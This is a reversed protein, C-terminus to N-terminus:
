TAIGLAAALVVLEEPAGGRRLADYAIEQARELSPSLGIEAAVTLATLAAGVAVPDGVAREVARVLLVEVVARARPSDITFGSARAERAIAIAGAFDEPAVSAGQKVVEAELRRALALEAPLRLELPMPYGAAMLAHLVDRHDSYLREYAAGFRDLLGRAARRLIHAGEDPLASALGFETPGFRDSIVRLLTTVPAGESMAARIATFDDPDHVADAARSAGLVELGGLHLAAYSHPSTRGTRRHTVVVTGSSLSVSGRTRYDHDGLVVSYAAVPSAPTREDFLEGLALHAVVREADVRVPVVHRFWIDRGNGEDDVNSRAGALAELFAPEPPSEGLERLCDMARGAYRLVQVTELGAVDNFFWGCSTYMAMRHRECELATFADVQDGTIHRAAFEDSTCAGVLVDVYADLAAQPDGFWSPGRRDFVERAADSVLDLADRLPRRWAQHWGPLGGTSCGCDDRWRGIGHACSWSSEHVDVESVPRNSELWRAPTTVEVGAEPAVVELAYALLRDGFVHHHGFTEGDAALTALGDDGAAARARDVLGESTIGGLEFAAAHSLAGDYFIVDVGRGDGDPHRWRYPHRTDISGDSVDSWAGDGDDLRRVRAAQGPALMTFAVGEEALIRMVRDNVATEPLWLGAAERGFRHAFERRAWRVQTRVDHERALPLIIHFFAQAMGGQGARDADLLQQYAEPAGRELWSLLTPGFDWSMHRYNNVISVVRGDDDYVRAFANPRYSELAIRENWDHFPTASAERPVEETWPNERPPQYFHGHVIFAPATM